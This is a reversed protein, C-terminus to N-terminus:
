DAPPVAIRKGTGNAIAAVIAQKVRDHDAEPWMRRLQKFGDEERGSELYSGVIKIIRAAVTKRDDENEMTGARFKRLTPGPLKAFTERITRDFHARFQRSENVLKGDELMLWVEPVSEGLLDSAPIDPLGRFGDDPLVVIRRGRSTPEFRAPYENEFSVVPKGPECGVIRYAFRREKGRTRFIVDDVEDSDIDKGSAAEMVFSAAAEDFVVAGARMVTARCPGEAASIQVSCEDLQRVGTQRASDAPCGLEPQAARSFAALLVGVTVIVIRGARVTM